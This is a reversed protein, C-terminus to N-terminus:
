PLSNKTFIKLNGIRLNQELKATKTSLFLSPSFKSKFYKNGSIPIPINNADGQNHLCYADRFGRDTEVLSCPAVDWFVTMKM